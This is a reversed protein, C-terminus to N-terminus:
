GCFRHIQIDVSYRWAGRPFAPCIFSFFCYKFPSSMHIYIGSGALSFHISQVFQKVAGSGIRENIPNHSNIHSHNKQKLHHELYRRNHGKECAGGQITYLCVQTQQTSHQKQHIHEGSLINPPAAIAQQEVSDQHQRSQCGQPSYFISNLLIQELNAPSRDLEAQNVGKGVSHVPFFQATVTSYQVHNQHTYPKPGAANGQFLIQILDAVPLQDIGKCLVTAVVALTKKVVPKEANEVRQIVGGIDAQNKRNYAGEQAKATISDKGFDKSDHRIQNQQAM